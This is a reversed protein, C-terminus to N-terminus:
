SVMLSGTEMETVRLHVCIHTCGCQRVGGDPGEM